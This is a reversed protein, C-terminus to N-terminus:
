HKSNNGGVASHGTGELGVRERERRKRRFDVLGESERRKRRFDVM